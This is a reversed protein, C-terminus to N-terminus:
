RLRAVGRSVWTAIRPGPMAHDQKLDLMRFGADSLLQPTDRTLQCGGALAKWVPNIRQQWRQLRADPSRGHEAFYVRAGPKLVRRLEALAQYVNPITCLTFTVVASDFSNSPADIAEGSIPLLDVRIPSANMRERALGTIHEGPDVGTVSTVREPDYLGLNLGSGLGLEIVRGEAHPVVEQRIDMVERTGCMRDIMPSLLYKDYLGM